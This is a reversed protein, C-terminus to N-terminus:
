FKFPKIDTYCTSAISHVLCFYSGCYNIYALYTNLLFSCLQICQTSYILNTKIVQLTYICICVHILVCTFLLFANDEYIIRSYIYVFVLVYKDYILKDTDM